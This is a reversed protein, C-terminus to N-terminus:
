VADASLSGGAQDFLVANIPYIYAVTMVLAILTCVAPILLWLRHTKLHWGAVLGLVLPLGRLVMTPPGFFHRVTQM